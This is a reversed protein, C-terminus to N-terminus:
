LLAYQSYAEKPWFSCHVEGIHKKRLLFMAVRSQGIGGGITQPLNRAILDKHWPLEMRATDGTEELQACLTEPDVRIGMSSLEFADDLVPNHVLIDGNLGPFSVCANASMHLDPFHAVAEDSSIPSSWDDYDPARADHSEGHSLKAGIGVLFVAGFEKTAEREREKPSLKPYKGLLQETHLFTIKPPLVPTLHSYIESLKSETSRLAEYISEVINKLFSLNRDEHKIVREWDWQDVVFSHVNDLVEGVRLAKMNSVIGKGVPFKYDSLKQRKWKALSHVVEFTSEPINAIDVKVSKEVGSLDDQIGTGVRIILPCEVPILNLNKKLEEGFLHKATYIQEQLEVYSTYDSTM